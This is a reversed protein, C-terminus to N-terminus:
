EEAKFQENKEVKKLMRILAQVKDVGWEGGDRGEKNETYGLLLLKVTGIRLLTLRRASLCVFRAPQSPPLPSPTVFCVFM